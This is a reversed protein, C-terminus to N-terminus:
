ITKEKDSLIEIEFDSLIPEFESKFRMYGHPLKDKAESRLIEFSSEGRIIAKEARGKAKHIGCTKSFPDLENCLSVGRAVSFDTDILFVVGCRHIGSKTSRRLYYYREKSKKVELEVM